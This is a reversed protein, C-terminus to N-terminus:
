TRASPGGWSCSRARPADFTHSIVFENGQPSPVEIDRENM